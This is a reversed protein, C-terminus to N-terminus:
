NSRNKLQNYRRFMEPGASILTLGKRAEADAWVFALNESSLQIPPKHTLLVQFMHHIFDRGPKRVYLSQLFRLQCSPDLQIGTEEFLERCACQEATENPEFKGGPPAWTGGEIKTLASRLLLLAGDVELYCVAVQLPFEIGDPKTEYIQYQM